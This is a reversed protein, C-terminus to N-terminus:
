GGCGGVFVNGEAVLGGGELVGDLSAVSNLVGGGEGTGNM